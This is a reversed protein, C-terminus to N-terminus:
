SPRFNMVVHIQGNSALGLMTPLKVWEDFKGDDFVHKLKVKCHGISDRGVVDADYVDFHITDDGKHINFTFRENWTPNNTNSITKTRQKYKKDTYIEIYADNQGVVDRDKLNQGEIVIVELTGEPM